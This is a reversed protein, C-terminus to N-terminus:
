PAAAGGDRTRSLRRAQAYPFLDVMPTRAQVEQMQRWFEVRLLDGHVELFLQRLEGRLELFRIFEEPFVDHEGVYFWPEGGSSEDDRPTPLPRFKCETLLCLEDYDYFVLRRNRTVGFNKLLLDGPFINTAALDCLAQGYDLVAERAELPSAERLYLDLPQVRRETYLHEVVISDGKAHVTRSATELLEELVAPEFRQREFQLHEFEQADILRGARDHQFVLEYKQKVQQQTTTKPPAFHDRIVKFVIDYSPITFVIMVMGRAGRAIEFRDSAHSLHRQLARYLVTKGHKNYGISNYLEDLPKHPMVSHLFGVLEGPREVAVLFYSHTYSFVISVEREALLVADVEVRGSANLLAIVLPLSGAYSRVRGVLYAGKNRYFVPKAIEIARVGVRPTYSEIERAVRAADRELDEYGVSFRNRHLIEHVLSEISDRRVFSDVLAGGTHSAEGGSTGLFEIEPDVGVTTFVRRTVSNFFTQAIEVDGRGAIREAFETRMAKWTTRERVRAGLLAELAELASTVSSRYQGLRAVADRRGGAWDRLEFRSRAQLTVRRFAAVYELYADRLITAGRQWDPEEARQWEM